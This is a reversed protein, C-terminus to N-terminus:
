RPNPLGIVAEVFAHDSHRIEKHLSLPTLGGGTWIQDLTLLPIGWPWTERFGPTASEHAPKLRGAVAQELLHSDAPTNFDGMVLTPRGRFAERFVTRLPAKRSLWPQSRIDVLIVDLAPGSALEVEARVCRLFGPDGLAEHGLIRGRVGLTLGNGFRQWALDPHRRTFDDWRARARGGEGHFPGTETIVTVDANFRWHEPHRALTRAANWTAATFTPAARGPATAPDLSRWGAQTAFGLVPLALWKWSPQLRLFAALGAAGILLWPSAYHVIATATWRDGPWRSLMGLWGALLFLWGPPFRRILTAAKM